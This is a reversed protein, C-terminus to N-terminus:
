GSVLAILSARVHVAGNQTLRRCREAYTLTHSSALSIFPGRKGHKLIEAEAESQALKMLRLCEAAQNRCHEEDM